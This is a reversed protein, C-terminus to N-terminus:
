STSGIAWSSPINEETPVDFVVIALQSAPILLKGKPYNPSWKGLLGGEPLYSVTIEARSENCENLSAHAISCIFFATVSFM